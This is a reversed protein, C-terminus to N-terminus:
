HDPPTVGVSRANEPQAVAGTLALALQKLLRAVAGTPDRTLQTLLLLWLLLWTKVICKWM